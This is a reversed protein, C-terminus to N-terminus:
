TGMRVVQRLAGHVRAVAAERRVKRSRVSRRGAPYGLALVGIPRCGDPVGLEGLLEKEGWSLGFYLAGLGEELAALLILMLAMATDIDWFPVPWSEAQQLGFQAKDPRSYRELYMPKNAIPLVLCPPKDSASDDPFRPDATLAFFRELQAPEDLVVLDIGQSFGASPAHRAVELVRMLVDRPIPAPQFRRVM